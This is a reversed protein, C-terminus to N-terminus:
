TTIVGATTTVGSCNVTGPTIAYGNSYANHHSHVSGVHTNYNGVHTNFSSALSSVDIGDVTGNITINGTLSLNSGNLQKTIVFYNSSNNYYFQANDGASDWILGKSETGYFYINSDLRLTNWRHDASGLSYTGAPLLATNIAVSALNSLATNAGKNDDVYKKTAAEQNNTPDVLGIIKNTGLNLTKNVVFRNDTNNYFFQANDGAADWVFGKNVTTEFYTNGILYFNDWRNTSTVGIDYSDNTMPYISRGFGIAGSSACFKIRAYSNDSDDIVSIYNTTTYDFRIREQIYINNWKYPRSGIDYTADNDPDIDGDINVYSAGSDASLHLPGFSAIMLGPGSVGSIAGCSEESSNLFAWYGNDSLIRILNASDYLYINDNELVIREGSTGTQFTAGTITGGWVDLGTCEIKGTKGDLKFGSVKPKFNRSKIWSRIWLNDLDQGSVKKSVENDRDDRTSGTRFLGTNDTISVDEGESRDLNSNYSNEITTFDLKTAKSM